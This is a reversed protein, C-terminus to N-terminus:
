QLGLRDRQGARTAADEPSEGVVAGQVSPEAYVWAGNLSIQVTVHNLPYDRQDIWKVRARIGLVLAMAVYLVALDECDGGWALTFVAGQYWEGPPDPIYRADYQVYRLLFQALATERELKTLNPYGSAWHAYADRVKFAAQQVLPDRSGAQAMETLIRERERPPTTDAVRFPAANPNRASARVSAPPACRLEDCFPTRNGFLSVRTADLM